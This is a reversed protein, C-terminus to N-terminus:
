RAGALDFDIPICGERTVEAGADFYSCKVSIVEECVNYRDYGIMVETDSTGVRKSAIVLHRNQLEVNLDAVGGQQFL